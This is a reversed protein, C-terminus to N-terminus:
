REIVRQIDKMKHVCANKNKPEKNLQICSKLNPFKKLIRQDKVFLCFYYYFIIGPKDFFLEKLKKKFVFPVELCVFYVDLINM